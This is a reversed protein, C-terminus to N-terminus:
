SKVHAEEEITPTLVPPFLSLYGGLEIMLLEVRNERNPHSGSFLSGGFVGLFKKCKSGDPEIERGLQYYERFVTKRRELSMPEMMKHLLPVAQRTDDAFNDDPYDQRYAEVLSEFLHEYMADGYHSALMFCM